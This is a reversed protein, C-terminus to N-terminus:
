VGKGPTEKSVPKHIATTSGEGERVTGNDQQSTAKAPDREDPENTGTEKREDTNEREAEKMLLHAIVDGHPNHKRQFMRLYAKGIAYAGTEKPELLAYQILQAFQLDHRIQRCRENREANAQEELRRATKELDDHFVLAREFASLM